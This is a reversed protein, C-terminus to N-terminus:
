TEFSVPLSRDGRRKDDSLHKSTRSGRTKGRWASEATWTRRNGEETQRIKLYEKWARELDMRPKSGGELRAIQFDVLLSLVKKLGANM